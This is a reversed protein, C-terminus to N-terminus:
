IWDLKEVTLDGQVDGTNLTNKPEILMVEVEDNAVPKHEMGKPIIAFEGASVVLDQKDHLQIVLRGKVVFFLEDENDHKHWVFEGKFKALKIYSENLEGVVKPSWHDNFLAMKGAVNVRSM